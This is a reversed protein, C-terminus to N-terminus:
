HDSVKTEFVQAFTCLLVIACTFQMKIKGAWRFGFVARRKALINRIGFNYKTGEREVAM